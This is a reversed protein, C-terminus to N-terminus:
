YQGEQKRHKWFPLMPKTQHHLQLVTLHAEKGLLSQPLVWLSRHGTRVEERELKSQRQAANSQRRAFGSVTRM